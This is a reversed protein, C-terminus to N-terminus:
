VTLIEKEKAGFLEDIKKMYKDHLKQVSAEGDKEVDEPMGNKLAKKLGEIADRRANRVSVKANEAEQKSQKVLTKRRDETLPPIGIRIIEGNNEPTIGLESDIIAKEIVKFMPKEWPTIVITRADPVSINAVNSLPVLSGYYDVRIGDLIRPNAKGARIHALAEDLHMIAMDMKEQSEDIYTKIDTM